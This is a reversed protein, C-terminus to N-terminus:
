VNDDLLSSSSLQVRTAEKIIETLNSAFLIDIPADSTTAVDPQLLCKNIEPVNFCVMM